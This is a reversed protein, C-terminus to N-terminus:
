KDARIVVIRGTVEGSLEVPQSAKGWGRDLLIDLARLRDKVDASVKGVGIKGDVAIMQKVPKGEAVDGLFVLLERKEVISACEKQLWDAKRGSGERRGGPAPTGKFPM